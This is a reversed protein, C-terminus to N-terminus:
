LDVLQNELLEAMESKLIKPGTWFDQPKEPIGVTGHPLTLCEAGETAKKYIKVTHIELFYVEFDPGKWTAQLPLSVASRRM